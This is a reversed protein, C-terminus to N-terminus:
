EGAKRQAHAEKLIASVVDLPLDDLNRFRICGKGCKLKGLGERHADVVDSCVYLAMHAKQSALGFLIEGISYSAMGYQMGEVADPAIKRILTRLKSLAKRRDEPLEELYAQVTTAKSQMAVGQYSEIGYEEELWVWGAFPSGAKLGPWVPNASLLSPARAPRESSAAEGPPADEM